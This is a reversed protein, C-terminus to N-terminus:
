VSTRGEDILGHLRLAWADRACWGVGSAGRAGQSTSDGHHRTSSRPYTEVRRGSPRRTSGPIQGRMRRALQRRHSAQPPALDWPTPPSRSSHGAVRRRSAAPKATTGAGAAVAAKAPAPLRRGQPLPAASAQEPQLTRQLTEVRFLCSTARARTRQQPCTGFRSTGLCSSGRGHNQMTSLTRSHHTPTIAADSPPIASDHFM